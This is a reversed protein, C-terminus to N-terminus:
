SKKMMTINVELSNNDKHHVTNYLQTHDAYCLYSVSFRSMPYFTYQYYICFDIGASSLLVAFQFVEILGLYSHSSGNSYLVQSVM